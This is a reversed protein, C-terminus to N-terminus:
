RRGHVGWLVRDWWRRTLPAQWALARPRKENRGHICWGGDLLCDGPCDGLCHRCHTPQMADPM